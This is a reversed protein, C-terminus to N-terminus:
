HCDEYMRERSDDLVFGPPYRNFRTQVNAMWADFNAKWENYSSPAAPRTGQEGIEPAAANLLSLVLQEVSVHLTAARNVLREFIDKPISLTPM